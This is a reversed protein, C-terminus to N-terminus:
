GIRGPVDDGLGGRGIETELGPKRGAKVGSRVQLGAIRRPRAASSLKSEFKASKM